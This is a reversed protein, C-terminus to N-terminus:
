QELEILAHEYTIRECESCGPNKCQALHLAEDALRTAVRARAQEREKKNNYTRWLTEGVAVAVIVAGIALSLDM